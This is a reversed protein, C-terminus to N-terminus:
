IGLTQMPLQSHASVCRYIWHQPPLFLLRNTKLILTEAETFSGPVSFFFHYLFISSMSKQSGSGREGLYVSM